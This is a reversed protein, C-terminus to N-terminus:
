NCCETLPLPFDRSFFSSLRLHFGVHSHLKGPQLQHIWHDGGASGKAVADFEFLNHSSRSPAITVLPMESSGIAPWAAGRRHLRRRAHQIRDPQLVHADFLEHFLL